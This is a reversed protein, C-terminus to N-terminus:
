DKVCRLSFIDNKLSLQRYIQAAGGYITRGWANSSNSETTTWFKTRDGLHRFVGTYFGAPLADFGLTASGANATWYSPSNIKLNNGEDTGLLGITTEDFPFELPSSGSNRELVTWEYHSPIHWNVPCIGQVLNNCQPQTEGTGNCSLSGDMIEHWSYMGGFEICKTLNNEYCYKQIGPETQNINDFVFDGYNLNQKMWCQNGILVSAYVQGDRHDRFKDGCNFIPKFSFEEGYGILNNQNIAYARMYYITDELLGDINSIFGGLGSGNFTRFDDYTPNPKTNWCVGRKTIPSGGDSIVNGGCIASYSTVDTVDATTVIPTSTALFKIDDGYGTGASNTAYARVFYYTEANLGYLNSTYVGTGEGDNSKNDNITPQPFIAWCVGRNTVVSAGSSIIDGGSVASSDTINTINQTYLVPVKATLEEEPKCSYQFSLIFIISILICIKFFKNLM